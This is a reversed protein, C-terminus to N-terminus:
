LAQFCGHHRNRPAPTLWCCNHVCITANRQKTHKNELPTEKKHAMFARQTVSYTNVKEVLVDLDMTNCSMRGVELRETSCWVFWIKVVHGMDSIPVHAASTFTQTCKFCSGHTTASVPFSIFKNVSTVSTSLLPVFELCMCTLTVFFVSADYGISKM